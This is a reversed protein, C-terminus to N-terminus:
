YATVIRPIFSSKALSDVDRFKSPVEYNIAQVDIKWERIQLLDSTFHEYAMFPSHVFRQARSTMVALSKFLKELYSSFPPLHRELTSSPLSISREVLSSTLLNLRFLGFFYLAAHGYAGYAWYIYFGLGMESFHGMWSSNNMTPSLTVVDRRPRGDDVTKPVTLIASSSFSPPRRPTPPPALSCGQIPSFRNWPSSPSSFLSM